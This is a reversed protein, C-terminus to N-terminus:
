TAYNIKKIKLLPCKATVKVISPTAALVVYTWLALNKPRTVLLLPLYGIALCLCIAVFYHNEM